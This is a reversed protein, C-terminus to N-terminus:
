PKPNLNPDVHHASKVLFRLKESLKPWDLDAPPLDKEGYITFCARQFTANKKKTQSTQSTSMTHLVSM